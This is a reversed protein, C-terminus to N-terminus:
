PICVTTGRDIAATRASAVVFLLIRQARLLVKFTGSGTVFDFAKDGTFKNKGNM